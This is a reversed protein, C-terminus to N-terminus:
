KYVKGITVKKIECGLESIQKSIFGGTLKNTNNYIPVILATTQYFTPIIYTINEQQQLCNDSLVRFETTIEGIKNGFNYFGYLSACTLIILIATLIYGRIIQFSVLFWIVLTSIILLVWVWFSISGMTMGVIRSLDFFFIINDRISPEIFNLPINFYSNYGYQFLIPAAYFYVGTGLFAKLLNM